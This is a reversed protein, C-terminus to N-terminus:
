MCRAFRTKMDIKHQTPYTASQKGTLNPNVALPCSFTALFLTERSWLNVRTKEKSAKNLDM